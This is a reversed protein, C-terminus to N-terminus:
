RRTPFPLEGRGARPTGSLSPLPNRLPPTDRRTLANERMRRLRRRPRLSLRPGWADQAGSGVASSARAYSPVHSRSLPYRFRKRHGRGRRGLNGRAATVPGLHGQSPPTSRAVAPSGSRSMGRVLSFRMRTASARARPALRVPRVGHDRNVGFAIQSGSLCGIASSQRRNARCTPLGM